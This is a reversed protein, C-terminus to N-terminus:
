EMMAILVCVMLAYRLPILKKELNIVPLEPRAVLWGWIVERRFPSRHWSGAFFGQRRGRVASKSDMQRWVIRQPYLVGCTAWVRSAMNKSAKKPKRLHESNVEEVM